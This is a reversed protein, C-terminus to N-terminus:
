TRGAYSLSKAATAIKDILPNYNIVGLRKTALPIGLYRVPWTRIPFGVPQQISTLEYDSLGATFFASKHNNIQLGSADEFEKLIQM